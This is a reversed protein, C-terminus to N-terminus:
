SSLTSTVRCFAAGQALPHVSHLVVCFESLQEAIEHRPRAGSRIGHTFVTCRQTGPMGASLSVLTVASQCWPSHTHSDHMGTTVAEQSKVERM